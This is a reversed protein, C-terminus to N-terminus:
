LQKGDNNNQKGRLQVTKIKSQTDDLVKEGQSAGLTTSM